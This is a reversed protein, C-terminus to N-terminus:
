CRPGPRRSAKSTPCSGGATPIAGAPWGSRTATISSPREPCPSCCGWRWPRVATPSPRPRSRPRSTGGRTADRTASSRRLFRTADHNGLIPAMASGSKAIAAETQGLLRDIGDFGGTGHAVADRIAWMLPFDFASDLGDPGLYYRIGRHRRPVPGTFIEGLLTSGRPGAATRAAHLIRRTVARPMMPVADIRFGDIDFEDLWWRADEVAAALADPQEFRVDPLYPAFWCDEIHEAWSCGPTGCVCPPDHEHFWGDARHETFRPNTEYM